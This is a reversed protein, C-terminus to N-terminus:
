VNRCDSCYFREGQYSSEEIKGCKECTLKQRKRNNTFDKRCDNCFFTDGEWTTFKQKKCSDCVRMRERRKLEIEDLHDELYVVPFDFLSHNELLRRSTPHNDGITKFAVLMTLKGLLRARKLLPMYDLDGAVLAAIDYAGSLAAYYMMCSALAVDVCKEQPTHNENGRFDIEFIEMEYHCDRELYDYFRQQQSPDYEPKNVPISGFFNTRVTHIEANLSNALQKEIVSPLSRYDIRFDPKEFYNAIQSRNQYLWTGDIFIMLKLAM